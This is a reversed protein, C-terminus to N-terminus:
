GFKLSHKRYLIRQFAKQNQLILHLAMYFPLMNLIYYLTPKEPNNKLESVIQITETDNANKM